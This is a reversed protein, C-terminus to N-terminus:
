KSCLCCGQLVANPDDGVGERIPGAVFGATPSCPVFEHNWWGKPLLTSRQNHYSTGEGLVVIQHIIFDLSSHCLNFRPLGGWSQHRQSPSLLSDLLANDLMTEDITAWVEKRLPPSASRVLLYFCVELSHIRRCHQWPLQRCIAKSMLIEQRTVPKSRDKIKWTRFLLFGVESHLLM